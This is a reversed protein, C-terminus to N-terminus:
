AIHRTAAHAGYHTPGVGVDIRGSRPHRGSRALTDEGDKREKVIGEVIDAAISLDEESRGGRRVLETGSAGSGIWVM